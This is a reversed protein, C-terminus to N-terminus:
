VKLNAVRSLRDSSLKQVLVRRRETIYRAITARHVGFETACEQLTAGDRRREWLKELEAEGLLRPRGDGRSEPSRKSFHDVVNEARTGLYLHAPNCCLANDCRHNVCFEGRIPGHTLVWAKRHAHIPMSQLSTLGHGSSKTYGQWPWCEEPTGKAVKAWFRAQLGKEYNSM